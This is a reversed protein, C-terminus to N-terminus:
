GWIDFPDAVESIAQSSPGGPVQPRLVSALITALHGVTEPTSEGSELTQVVFGALVDRLGPDPAARRDAIDELVAGIGRQIKELVDSARSEKGEWTLDLRISRRASADPDFVASLPGLLGSELDGDVDLESARSRLSEWREEVDDWLRKDVADLLDDKGDFRAYFSGVSSRSRKVVDKITVDRPPKSAFEQIAGAMIRALTRRSRDQKPEEM